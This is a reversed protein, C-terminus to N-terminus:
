ARLREVGMVIEDVAADVEHETTERGLTLRLAGM